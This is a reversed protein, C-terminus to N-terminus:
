GIVAEGTALDAEVKDRAIRSREVVLYYVLGVVLILSSRDGRLVPHGAAVLHPQGGSTVFRQAVPEHLRASTAASTGSCAPDKWLAFNIIM